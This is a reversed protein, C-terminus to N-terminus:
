SCELCEVSAAQVDKVVSRVCGLWEKQSVPGWGSPRELTAHAHVAGRIGTDYNRIAVVPQVGRCATGSPTPRKAEFWLAAYRSPLSV